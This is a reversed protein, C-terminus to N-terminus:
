ECALGDGEGDGNNGTRNAFWDYVEAQAPDDRNFPGTPDGVGNKKLKTCSTYKEWWRNEAPPAVPAPAAVVPAPAVECGVAIVSGDAALSALQAAHYAAEQPHAPYGDSSDYRAVANGAQLQMLGLDVGSETTVYRLLRGHQDQDNEGAPLQLTIAAGGALLNGIAVSAEDHGCEGLEPADIGIIRVTGASTEITDGDTVSVFSVAASDATAPADAATNPPADAPDASSALEPACGALAVLVFMALVAAPLRSVNMKVV